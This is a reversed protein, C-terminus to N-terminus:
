TAPHIKKLALATTGAENSTYIKRLREIARSLNSRSAAATIGLMQGIETHSYEEMVYLNFVLRYAPSLHQLAPLADEQPDLLPLPMEVSNAHEDAADLGVFTIANQRARFYDVATNVLIRRLWPKFPADPRFTDLRNFIKLFADNLIEAAEDRHAAYRLCISMAYGYFQRYLERQCRRDQRICGALLHTLPPDNTYVTVQVLHSSLFAACIQKKVIKHPCIYFYRFFFNRRKVKKV